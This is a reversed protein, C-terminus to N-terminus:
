VNENRIEAPNIHGNTLAKSEVNKNAEFYDFILFHSKTKVAWGSHGLYYIEAQNSEISKNNNLIVCGIM